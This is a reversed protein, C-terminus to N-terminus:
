LEEAGKPKELEARVALYMERLFEGKEEERLLGKIIDLAAWAIKVSLSHVAPDCPDSQMIMAHGWIFYPM